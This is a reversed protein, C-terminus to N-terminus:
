VGWQQLCALNQGEALQFEQATDTLYTGMARLTDEVGLLAIAAGLYAITVIATKRKM